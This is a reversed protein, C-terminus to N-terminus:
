NFFLFFISLIPIKSDKFKGMWDNSIQGAAHIWLLLPPPSCNMKLRIELRILFSSKWASYIVHERYVSNLHFLNRVDSRKHGRCPGTERFGRFSKPGMFGNKTWRYRFVGSVLRTHLSVTWILFIHIFCSQLRLTRSKAIAKRAWFTGPSELFPGRATRNRIAGPCM